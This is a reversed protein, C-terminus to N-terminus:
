FSQGIRIHNSYIWGRDRKYVEVRYIGNKRPEYELHDAKAEIIKGETGILRITAKDPSQVTLHSNDFSALYGGDAVTESGRLGRFQFGSADGWRYNSVFARCDKIGEYIQWKATELDSSLEERLLIHTRLSKFQVKYPFITIRLPGIKYPYGHVDVGGLGAVKKHLSLEDLKQLIRDTPFRMFRRPSFVMKLKNYPKLNEMWESMQNWIEIGDYDEADWATWPYSPYKGLRPRIEDPHAVIGLASQRKGEAVYEKPTLSPPLVGRTGFLLYHNCDDRDNHEYGILVLLKKYYGEKGEDKDKLTMHDSVLIFDLGASSATEAVEELSKTGDSATTHIHLCGKYEHYIGSKLM